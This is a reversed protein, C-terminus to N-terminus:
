ILCYRVGCFVMTKPSFTPRDNTFHDPRGGHIPDSQKLPAYRRVNQSNVHGSLQFVAEDSFLFEHLQQDTLGLIWTCFTSRRPLDAPNLAHRRVPKYPHYRIDIKIRWWLHSKQSKIIGTNKMSKLLVPVFILTRIPNKISAVVSRNRIAVQERM